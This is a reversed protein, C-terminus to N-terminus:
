LCSGNSWGSMVCCVQVGARRELMQQLLGWCTPSPTSGGEAPLAQLLEAHRECAHRMGARSCWGPKCVGVGVWRCVCVRLCQVDSCLQHTQLVTTVRVLLGVSRLLWATSWYPQPRCHSLRHHQRILVLPLMCPCVYM